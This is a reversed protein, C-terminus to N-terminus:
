TSSSPDHEQVHSLWSYAQCDLGHLLRFSFFFFVPLPILLPPDVPFPLADRPSSCACSDSNRHSSSQAQHDLPLRPLFPKEFPQSLKRFPPKRVKGGSLLELLSKKRACRCLCPGFLFPCPLHKDEIQVKLRPCVWHRLVHGNRPILHNTNWSYQRNRWNM